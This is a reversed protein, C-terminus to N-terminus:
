CMFKMELSFYNDNQDFCLCGRYKRVIESISKLGFGHNKKDPKTSEIKDGNIRVPAGISNIVMVSLGGCEKAFIIKIYRDNPNQIKECAEIANDLANGVAVCLDSEDIRSFDFGRDECVFRINATKAIREKQCLLSRIIFNQTNEKEANRLCDCIENIKVKAKEYEGLQIYGSIAFLHNKIDHCLWADRSKGDPITNKATNLYGFTSNQIKM